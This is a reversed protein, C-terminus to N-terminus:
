HKSENKLVFFYHYPNDPNFFSKEIQWGAERLDEKIRRIPYGSTGMEWYHEGNFQYKIPKYVFKYALDIKGLFPMQLLFRFFRSNTITHPLSIVMRPSVEKLNILTKIFDDYKIHEFIQCALIVDFRGKLKELASVHTVSGVHDVGIRNDIDLTQVMIGTARLVNTVINNGPGIELVKDPKLSMVERIQIAYSTWRVPSIYKPDTYKSTSKAQVKYNM